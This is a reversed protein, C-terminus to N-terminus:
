FILICTKSVSSADITGCLPRWNRKIIGVVKGMPKVILADDQAQDIKMADKEKDEKDEENTEESEEEVAVEPATSWESRPLIQVAVLDGHIARNLHMRGVLRISSEVGEIKTM